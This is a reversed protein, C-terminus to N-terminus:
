RQSGNRRWDEDRGTAAQRDFAVYPSQESYVMPAGKVIGNASTDARLPLEFKGNQADAAEDIEDRAQDAPDIILAKDEESSPNFGIKGYAEPTVLAALWDLVIEPAPSAFPVAYRKGLKADIWASKSNLKTQLWGPSRQELRQIMEAPMVSRLGFGAVDLYGIQAVM